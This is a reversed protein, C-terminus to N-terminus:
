SFFDQKTVENVPKQYVELSKFYEYSYILKKNLYKWKDPFENKLINFDDIDLTKVLEDVRLLLFRYSDIFGICAYTVSIYEEITKPIIGFKVENKRDFLEKIAFSM